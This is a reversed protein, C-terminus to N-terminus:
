NRLPRCTPKPRITAATAVPRTTITNSAKLVWATTTSGKSAGGARAARPRVPLTTALPTRSTSVRSCAAVRALAVWRWSVLAQVLSMLTSTGSVPTETPSTSRMSFARKPWSMWM